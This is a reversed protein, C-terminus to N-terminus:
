HFIGEAANDLREIIKNVQKDMKELAAEGKKKMDEKLKSDPCFAALIAQADNLEMEIQIKM